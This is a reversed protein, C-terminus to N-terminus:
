APPPPSRWAAGDAGLVLLCAEDTTAETHSTVVRFGHGTATRIVEAALMGLQDDDTDPVVLTLLSGRAGRLARAVQNPRYDLAAVAADVRRRVRESVGAYGNIANSATKVSVGARLAVDRLTAAM